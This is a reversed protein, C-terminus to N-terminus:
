AKILSQTWRSISALVSDNANAFAVGYRKQEESWVVMGEVELSDKGDPSQIAMKVVGGKELWADTNLQIGGLSITSVHGVLERDGFRVRVQSDIQYRTYRRLNKGSRNRLAIALLIPAMLVVLLGFFALNKGPASLGTGGGDGDGGSMSKMVLGCGGMSAPARGAPASSDYSPQSSAVTATQAAVLSSYVNIRSQTSTKNVLSSVPNADSYILSKVQYGNMLPQERVIMAAIGSVFPTAMSTGSMRYTANGPYTSLISVGPSGVGVSQAGFNSFSAFADLDSTAAISMVNPVSYNAPYTPSIDNNNSSNGAAAVFVTDKSYAYSIADLLSQSMGGGGWSNNLVKAGNNVAYYIANVADSTSGSGTNDLFKLAMIRIKAPQIPLAFIDQTTGLIIGAVHTGHGDDDLPSNNSYVFNWGHVDDIYGNHDDDIGNNAIENPNTWIAGSNVFASHNLDVGTDIVAVVSPSLDATMAAWAQQLQIPASTQVNLANATVTDASAQAQQLQEFPIPQGEGGVSMRRVIYNPEAYEVDPDQKLQDVADKVNQGEALKFHHMNLGNWSGRLTMSRQSVAKGVFAQAKLSKSTGKLKVIVEGERFEHTSAIQSQARALSGGLILTGILASALETLAARRNLFTRIGAQILRAGM